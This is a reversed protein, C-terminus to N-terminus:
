KNGIDELGYDVDDGIMDRDADKELARMEREMAEQEMLCMECLGDETLIQGHERCIAM